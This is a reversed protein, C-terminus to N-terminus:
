VGARDAEAVEVRQGGAARHREADIVPGGEASFVRRKTRGVTQQEIGVAQRAGAPVVLAEALLSEEARQRVAGRAGAWSLASVRRRHTLWKAPLRKASSMQM